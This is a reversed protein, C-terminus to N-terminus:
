LITAIDTQVKLQPYKDASGKIIRYKTGLVNVTKM